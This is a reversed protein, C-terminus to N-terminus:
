QQKLYLRLDEISDELKLIAFEIREDVVESKIAKNIINVAEKIWNQSMLLRQKDM